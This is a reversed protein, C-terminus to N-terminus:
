PDSEGVRRVPGVSRCAAARPAAPRSWRTRRETPTRRDKGCVPSVRRDTETETYGRRYATERKAREIVIEYM